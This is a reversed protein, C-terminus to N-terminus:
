KNIKGEKFNLILSHKAINNNGLIGVIQYGTERNVIKVIDSIDKMHFTDEMKEGGLFLTYESAAEIGSAVGGYGIVDLDSDGTPTIGFQKAQNIDFISISAGTDLLLYATKGNLTTKVIPIFKYDKMDTVYTVDSNNSSPKSARGLLFSGIFVLICLVVIKLTNM